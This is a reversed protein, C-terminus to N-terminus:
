HPETSLRHTGQNAQELALRSLRTVREALRIAAAQEGQRMKERAVSLLESLSAKRNFHSSFVLWEVKNERVVMLEDAARSIAPHESQLLSPVPKEPVTQCGGLMLSCVIPFFRFKM